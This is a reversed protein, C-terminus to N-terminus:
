YFRILAFNKWTDLTGMQKVIEIFREGREEFCSFEDFSSCAPSLLVTDGGQAIISAFRVANDFNEIVSVKNVGEELAYDYLQKRNEGYLIIEKVKDKIEIFLEKYGEQKYKRDKNWAYYSEKNLDQKKHRIWLVRM